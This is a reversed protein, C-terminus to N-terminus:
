SSDRGGSPDVLEEEITRIESPRVDDIQGREEEEDWTESKFILILPEYHFFPIVKEM